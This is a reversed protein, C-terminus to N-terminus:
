GTACWGKVSGGAKSRWGKRWSSLGSNIPQRGKSSERGFTTIAPQTGSRSIGDAAAYIVLGSVPPPRTHPPWSQTRYDFTAGRPSAKTQGELEVAIAAGGRNGDGDPMAMRGVPWSDTLAWFAVDLLFSKGLGNDGTLINLRPGFEADLIPSPGVEVLHLSKLM